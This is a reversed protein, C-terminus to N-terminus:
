GNEYNARHTYGDAFPHKANGGQRRCQDDNHQDDQPSDFSSDDSPLPHEMVRELSRIRCLEQFFQKVEEFSFVKVEFVEFHFIKRLELVLHTHTYNSRQIAIPTQQSAQSLESRFQLRGGM